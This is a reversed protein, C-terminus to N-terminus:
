LAQVVSSHSPPRQSCSATDPQWGHVVAASQLGPSEHLTQSSPMQWVRAVGGQSGQVVSPSQSSWFAQVASAQVAPSHV